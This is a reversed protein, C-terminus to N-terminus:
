PLSQFVIVDVMDLLTVSPSTHKLSVQVATIPKNEAKVLVNRFAWFQDTAYIPVTRITKTSDNYTITVTADLVKGSTNNQYSFNLMISNTPAIPYTGLNVDQRLTTAESPTGVFRMVCNGFLSGNCVVGDGGSIGTLTWGTLSTEFSTNTLTTSHVMTGVCGIIRINDVWWGPSSITSNTAVVWRFRVNKGALSSLDFSTSSTLPSLNNHTYGGFMPNRTSARPNSSHVTKDYTQGAIGASLKQWTTGNNITYEVYGGDYYNTGDQDFRYDHDFLLTSHPLITVNNKMAAWSVSTSGLNRGWLSKQGMLPMQNSIRWSKKGLDAGLVWNGTKVEFNEDFYTVPTSGSCPFPAQQPLAANGTVSLMDTNGAGPGAYTIIQVCDSSTIGHNGVLNYCAQILANGLDGYNAGPFLVNTLAEYWIRAARENGMYNAMLYAMYNGVGKNIKAATLDVNTSWFTGNVASPQNTANPNAMDGHYDQTYLSPEGIKWFNTSVEDGNGNAQDVFEGFVDKYSELIAWSQGQPIFGATHRIIGETLTRAVIDDLAVTGFSCLTKDVYSARQTSSNWSYYCGSSPGVNATSVILMGMGDISDRGLKSWFYDYTDRTFRHVSDADQNAGNTCIAKNQKCLLTGPSVATKNATYTNIKPLSGISPMAISSDKSVDTGVASTGVVSAAGDPAPPLPLPQPAVPASPAPAQALANFESASLLLDGNQADILVLYSLVTDNRDSVTVKYALRAPLRSPMLLREDYIVLEPKTTKLQNAAMGSARMVFGKAIQRARKPTLKPTTDINLNPSIEGAMVLLGGDTRTNMLLAGGFVPIGRYMQQYRRTVRGDTTMFDRAFALEQAVDRVGFQPALRQLILDANVAPGNAGNVGAVYLPQGPQTGIFTVLGTEAHTQTQVPTDQASMPAISLLLVCLLTLVAGLRARSLSSLHLM